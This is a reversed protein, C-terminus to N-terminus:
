QGTVTRYVIQCAVNGWVLVLLLALVIGFILINCLDPSAISLRASFHPEPSDSERSAPAQLIIQTAICYCVEALCGLSERTPFSAAILLPGLLLLKKMLYLDSAIIVSACKPDEESNHEHHSM